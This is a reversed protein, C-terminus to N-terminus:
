SYVYKALYGKSTAIVIHAYAQSILQIRTGISASDFHAMESAVNSLVHSTFDRGSVVPNVICIM